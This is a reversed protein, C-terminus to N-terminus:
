GRAGPAPSDPYEAVVWIFSQADIFDRAGQSKLQALLKTALTMVASYTKWNPKPDYHLDFAMRQAAKKTVEPKVLVHRQPDACFPLVTVIPWTVVRGKEAPLQATAKVLQTFTEETGSSPGEAFALTAAFFARAAPVDKLADMLAATEFKKSLFNTASEIELIGEVVADIRDGKLLSAGRGEGFLKLWLAHAADKYDREGQLYRQDAFGKPFERHFKALAMAHTMWGKPLLFDTGHKDLPPLHPLRWDLEAEAPSDVETIAVKALKTARGTEFDKPFFVHANRQDVGVVKGIGFDKKPNRVWAGVGISM